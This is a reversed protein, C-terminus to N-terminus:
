PTESFTWPIIIDSTVPRGFDYDWHGAAAPALTPKSVLGGKEVEQEGFITGDACQFTAKYKSVPPETSDTGGTSDSGGGTSGSGGGEGTSGHSGTGGSGGSTSHGGGAAGHSGTGGPTEIKDAEMPKGGKEDPQNELVAAGPVYLEEPAAQNDAPQEMRSDPTQIEPQRIIPLVPEKQPLEPKEPLPLIKSERKSQELGGKGSDEAARGPVSSSGGPRRKEGILQELQEVGIGAERGGGSMIDQLFELVTVSKETYDIDQVGSKYYSSDPTNGIEVFQGGTVLIEEEMVTGDPYKLRSAVTGNFTDLATSYSGDEEEKVEARFCTGRVAMVANPTQVEYFSKGNLPNQIENTVAGDQLEIRTGSDEKTGEAVLTFVTNEEALIYKDDDLKLRLSSDQAVKVTDGSELYLNEYAEIEGSRERIIWASGDLKYIQISRYVDRRGAILVAVLIFVVIVAAAAMLIFRRNKIEPIKM